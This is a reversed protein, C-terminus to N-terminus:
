HVLDGGDVLINSGALYAGLDSALFVAVRGLEDVTGMRGIPIASVADAEFEEITKGSNAAFGALSEVTMDTRIWGPSISTVLIGCRALESAMIQTLGSVAFKSTGYAAETPYGRMGSQSCLNIIRGGKGQKVMQSAVLQSTTFTGMLNIDLVERLTEEPMELFPQSHYVGANNVLINVEGYKQLCLGLVKEMQARSRVDAAQYVAQYGHSRMWEMVSEGSEPTRGTIVLKAGEAAFREAIGRGIGRSGGTIIAVRDKLLM